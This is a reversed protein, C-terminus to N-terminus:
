KITRRRYLSRKMRIRRFYLRFKQFTMVYNWVSWRCILLIRALIPNTVPLWDIPQWATRLLHRIPSWFPTLLVSLSCRNCTLWADELLRFPMHWSPGCSFLKCIGIVHSCTTQPLRFSPSITLCRIQRGKRCKIKWNMRRQLVTRNQVTM